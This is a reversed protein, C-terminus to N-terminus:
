AEGQDGASLWWPRRAKGQSRSSGGRGMKGELVLMRRQFLCRVPTDNLLLPVSQQNMSRTLLRSVISIFPALCMSSRM